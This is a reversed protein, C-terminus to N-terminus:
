NKSRLIVKTFNDIKIIENAMELISDSTVEDIKEILHDISIYKGFYIENKAIRSMRRSTNELGLVINGKLQNKLKQLM